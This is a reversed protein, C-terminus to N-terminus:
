KVKKNALMSTKGIHYGHRDIDDLLEEKTRFLKDAGDLEYNWRCNTFSYEYYGVRENSSNYITGSLKMKPESSSRIYRKM